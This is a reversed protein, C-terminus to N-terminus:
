REAPARSAPVGAAGRAATRWAWELPGAPFHRTWWASWALQVTWVALVILAQGVRDVAGFLGLGHGYFITTCIVSQLLYNSLATRGVAAVARARWGLRCLLMVLGVFGTGLALDGAYSLQTGVRMFDDLDFGHARSRAVGAWALPLGVGFGLATMVAYFRSSRAATLVGLKFLGMGILMLGSTQWLGRLVLQSTEIQFAEPARYAMQGLWGGRYAAIERAVMEPSPAWVARFGARLDEPWSPMSFGVAAAIVSVALLALAGGGLLRRAPLGHLGFVLAGCLAFTVLMDGYWLLYAHLLGIGGLLAMRRRHLREVDGLGERGSALLLLGAGFLMAFIALFKGDALVATALWIWGNAGDLDGGVTPHLRAAVVMSFSQIHVPLIGLIGVGRLADLSTIRSAREAM